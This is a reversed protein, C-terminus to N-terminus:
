EATRSREQADEGHDQALQTIDRPFYHCLLGNGNENTGRQWLSYPRCFYALLGSARERFGAMESGNDLTLTKRLDPANTAVSCRRGAGPPVSWIWRGNGLVPETPLLSHGGAIDIRRPFLRARRGSSGQRRRRRHTRRLHCYSPDGLQVAAYIWRYIIEPSIRM